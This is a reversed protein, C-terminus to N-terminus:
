DVHNTWTTDHTHTGSLVLANTGSRSLASYVLLRLFAQEVAVTSNPNCTSAAVSQTLPDFSNLAKNIRIGVSHKIM